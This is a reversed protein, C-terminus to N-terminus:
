ITGKEHEIEQLAALVAALADALSPKGAEARTAALTLLDSIRGIIPPTPSPTNVGFEDEAYPQLAYQATVPGNLNPWDIRLNTVAVLNFTSEPITIPTTLSIPM